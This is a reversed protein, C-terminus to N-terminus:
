ISLQMLMALNLDHSVKHCKVHGSLPANPTM